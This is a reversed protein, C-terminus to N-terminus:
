AAPREPAEADRERPRRDLRPSLEARSMRSVSGLKAHCRPCEEGYAHAAAAYVTLRCVPCNLYPM